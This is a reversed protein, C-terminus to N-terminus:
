VTPCPVRQRLSSVGNAWSEFLHRAFRAEVASLAAAGFLMDSALHPEQAALGAAMRTSAVVAHVADAEVHVDYFRRAVAPARLRHLARGYRGMPGVSTMEFVALHGVLAGRLRRHLGFLSVLNVTALTTGPLLDLYAGYTPDLGLAAMTDAFLEAHSEGAVGDGYEDAQILVMASKPGGALRPICWTHPDAEKLQYASRHIAFEELEARTGREAMYRSLSPGDGGAVEALGAEVDTAAPVRVEARLAAEFASELERRLALLSPEWEWAADVGAFGRYHLEYCAYLALHFDDGCRADDVDVATPFPPVPHVPEVLHDFLHGSLPGRPRPLAPGAVQDGGDSV